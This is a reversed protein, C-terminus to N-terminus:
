LDGLHHPYKMNANETPTHYFIKLKAVIDKKSFQMEPTAGNSFINDSNVGLFTPLHFIVMSENGANQPLFFEV